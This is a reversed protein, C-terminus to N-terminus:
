IQTAKGYSKRARVRLWRKSLLPWVPDFTPIEQPSQQPKRKSRSPVRFICNDIVVQTPSRQTM